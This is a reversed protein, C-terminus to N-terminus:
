ENGNGGKESLNKVIRGYLAAFCEADRPSFNRFAQEWFTQQAELLQPLLQEAAETLSLHVRRRDESDQRRELLGKGMLVEVAQSVNSKPLRRLAVIDRATDRGPNNHLFVLIDFEMQSIGVKRCVARRQADYFRTIVRLGNVLEMHNNM